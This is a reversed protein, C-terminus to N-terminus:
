SCHIARPIRVLMRCSSSHLTTRIMVCRLPARSPLLRLILAMDSDFVEERIVMESDRGDRLIGSDAGADLLLTLCDWHNGQAAMLAPSRGDSTMLDPDAAVSLLLQTSQTHGGHVALHLPALGDRSRATTDARALLLCRAVQEQGRLCAVHIASFGHRNSSHLLRTCGGGPAKENQIITRAIATHGRGCAVALPTDSNADLSCPTAGAGLLAQVVAVHGAHAALHLATDGKADDDDLAGSFLPLLRSVSLTRGQWAALHLASDGLADRQRIAAVPMIELLRAVVGDEVDGCICPRSVAVHLETRGLM